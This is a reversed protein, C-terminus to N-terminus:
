LTSAPPQQSAFWAIDAWSAIAEAVRGPQEPQQSGAVTSADATAQWVDTPEAQEVAENKTNEEQEAPKAEVNEDEAADDGDGDIEEEEEEAAEEDEEDEEEDELSSSTDSEAQAASLRSTGDLHRWLSVFGDEGISGQWSFRGRLL